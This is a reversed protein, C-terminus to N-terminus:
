EKGKVNENIPGNGFMKRIAKLIMERRRLAEPDKKIRKPKELEKISSQRKSM